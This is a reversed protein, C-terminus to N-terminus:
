TLQCIIHTTNESEFRIMKKSFHPSDIMYTGTKDSFATQWKYLIVDGPKYTTQQEGVYAVKGEVYNGQGGLNLGNEQPYEIVIEKKKFIPNQQTM